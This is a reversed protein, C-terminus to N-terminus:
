SPLSDESRSQKQFNACPRYKSLHLCTSANRRDVDRDKLWWAAVLGEGGTQGKDGWRQEYRMGAASSDVDVAERDNRAAKMLVIVQQLRAM